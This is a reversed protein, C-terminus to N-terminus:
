SPIFILTLTQEHVLLILIITERWKEALAEHPTDGRTGRRATQSRVAAPQPQLVFCLAVGRLVAALHGARVM